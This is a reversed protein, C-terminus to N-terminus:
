EEKFANAMGVLRQYAARDFGCLTRDIFSFIDEQSGAKLLRARLLPPLVGSGVLTGAFVCCFKQRSM